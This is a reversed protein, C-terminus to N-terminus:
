HHRAYDNDTTPSNRVPQLKTAM